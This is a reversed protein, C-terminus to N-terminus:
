RPCRWPCTARQSAVSSDRASAGSAKHRSATSQGAEPLWRRRPPPPNEKPLLDAESVLGLLGGSDGVVPLASIGHKRMLGIMQHFTATPAVTVVNRSMVDEVTLRHPRVTPAQTGSLHGGVDHHVSATSPASHVTM